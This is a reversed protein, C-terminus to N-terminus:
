PAEEPADGADEARGKWVHANWLTDIIMWGFALATLGYAPWLYIAYRGADFDLTM